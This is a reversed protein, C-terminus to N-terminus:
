FIVLRGLDPAECVPLSFDGSASGAAAGEDDELGFSFEGEIRGASSAEIDLSGSAASWSANQVPWEVEGGLCAVPDWSEAAARYAEAPDADVQTLSASLYLTESAGPEYSGEPPVEDCRDGVCLGINLRHEGTDRVAEALALFFDPLADCFAAPQSGGMSADLLVESADGWASTEAVYGECSADGSYFRLGQDLAAEGINSVEGGSFVFLDVTDSTTWFAGGVEGFDGYGPVDLAEVLASAGEGEAPSDGSDGGDKDVCAGLLALLGLIRM